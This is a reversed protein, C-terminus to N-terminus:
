EVFFSDILKGNPKKQSPFLRKLAEFASFMYTRNKRGILENITSYKIFEKLQLRRKINTGRHEMYGTSHTGGVFMRIVDVLDGVFESPPYKSLDSFEIKEEPELDILDNGIHKGIGDGEDPIKVAKSYSLNFMYKYNIEKIKGNIIKVSRDGYEKLNRLSIFAYEPKCITSIGFDSMMVIFGLNEVFYKNGRFSYEWYGGPPIKKYLFNRAKIDKHALGISYQVFALCLICQLLINELLEDSPEKYPKDPPKNFSYNYIIEGIQGDLEEMFLNLLFVIKHRRKEHCVSFSYLMPFNQTKKKLIFNTMLNFSILEANHGMLTKNFENKTSLEAEKIIVPFKGCIPDLLTVVGYGGKGIEEINKLFVKNIFNDGLCMKKELGGPILKQAAKLVYKRYNFNFMNIDTQDVHESPDFIEECSEETLTKELKSKLNKEPSPFLLSSKIIRIPTGPFKSKKEEKYKSSKHSYLSNIKKIKSKRPKSLSVSNKKVSKVQDPIERNVM